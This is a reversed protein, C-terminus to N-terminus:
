KKEEAPPSGLVVSRGMFVQILSPYDFAAGTGADVAVGIVGGFLINGAAMAKTSSKATAIGAEHGEKTCTVSLDNYSRNVTTSGPTVIFWTGKDNMLKCNAGSLGDGSAAKTEVSLVQNQGTVISACGTASAAVLAAATWMAKTMNMEGKRVQLQDVSAIRTLDDATM